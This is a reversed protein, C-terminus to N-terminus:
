INEQQASEIKKKVIKLVRRKTTIRPIVRPLSTYIFRPKSAGSARYSALICSQTFLHMKSVTDFKVIIVRKRKAVCGTKVPGDVKKQSKKSFFADFKRNTVQLNQSRNELIKRLFQVHHKTDGALTCRAFARHLFSPVVCGLIIIIFM